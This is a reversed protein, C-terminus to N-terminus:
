RPKSSELTSVCIDEPNVIGLVGIERHIVRRGSSEQIGRDRGHMGLFPRDEGSRAIECNRSKLHEPAKDEPNMFCRVGIHRHAGLRAWTDWSISPESGIEPNQL